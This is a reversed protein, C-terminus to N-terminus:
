AAHADGRQDPLSQRRRQLPALHARLAGLDSGALVRRLQELAAQADALATLTMDQNTALIDIMMTLDSAALRSTSLFGSAALEWLAPDQEGLPEVSGMLAAALLYPLHSAAGLLRDHREAELRRVSAGLASVLREALELAEPTSRSCPTLVFVSGAFLGADAHTFGSWEKGCLPHGGVAAIQDPLSEMATVIQRKTSGVDMLLAANPPDSAFDRLLRLTERVPTALVIVDAQGLAAPLDLVRIGARGALAANEPDIEVGAIARCRSRLALALSGGILGLGVVTM